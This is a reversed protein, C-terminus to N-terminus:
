RASPSSTKCSAGPVPAAPVPLPACAYASARSPILFFSRAFALPIEDAHDLAHYPLSVFLTHESTMDTSVAVDHKTYKYSHKITFSHSFTIILKLFM